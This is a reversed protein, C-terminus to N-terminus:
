AAQRPLADELADLRDGIAAVAAEIDALSTLLNPDVSDRGGLRREILKTRAWVVVTLQRLDDYPTAPPRRDSLSVIPGARPPPAPPAAVDGFEISRM